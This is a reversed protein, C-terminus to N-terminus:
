FLSMQGELTDDIFANAEKEAKREAKKAFTNNDPYEEVEIGLNDKLWEALYTRHCWNKNPNDCTLDEYCLLVVDKEGGYGAGVLLEMARDAGLKDLQAKYAEAFKEKSKINFIGYSPAFEIINKALEYKLPFRPLGRTIGVKIIEQSKLGSNSYRSTYLKGM